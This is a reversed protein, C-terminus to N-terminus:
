PSCVQPVRDPERFVIKGLTGGIDIGFIMGHPFIDAEEM